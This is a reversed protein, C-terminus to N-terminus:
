EENMIEKALSYYNKNWVDVNEKEETEGITKGTKEDIIISKNWNGRSGKAEISLVFPIKYSFEKVAGNPKAYALALEFHGKRNKEHKLIELLREVPIKKDFWAMFPGPMGNMVDLGISHDERMVPVNFEKAAEIAMQKAIESSTDAQIEPYDKEINKVKIGFQSFVSEAAMIKGKNKTILYIEKM